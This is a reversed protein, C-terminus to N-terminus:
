VDFCINYNEDEPRFDVAALHYDRAFTLGLVWGYFSGRRRRGATQHCCAVPPFNHGTALVLAHSFPADRRKSNAM